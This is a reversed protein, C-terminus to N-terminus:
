SKRKGNARNVDVAALAHEKALRAAYTPKSRGKNALAGHVAAAVAIYLEALQRRSLPM